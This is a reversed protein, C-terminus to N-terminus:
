EVRDSTVGMISKDHKYSIGWGQCVFGPEKGGALFAHTGNIGAVCHGWFAVPWLPGLRFEREKEEIVESDSLAKNSGDRGGVVIWSGNPMVTGAADVRPRVTRFPLRSWSQTSLGYSHCERGGCVTPSGSFFAGVSGKSTIPVSQAPAPRTCIGGEESVDLIESHLDPNGGIVM